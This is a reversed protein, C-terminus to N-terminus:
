DGLIGLAKLLEWVDTSPDRKLPDCHDAHGTNESCAPTPCDNTLKRARKAAANQKGTLTAAREGKVSKDGNDSFTEWHKQQQLKKHVITDSGNQAGSFSNFHLLLWLDFSPHSFAVQVGAKKAAAFAEPIGTHEDRDFLAWLEGDEGRHELVRDVVERPKLGNKRSERHIHFQHEEGFTEQLYALYDPETVGGEVAVYFLRVARSRGPKLHVPKEANPDSRRKRSM